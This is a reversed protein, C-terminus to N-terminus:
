PFRLMTGNQVNKRLFLIVFPLLSPGQLLFHEQLLWIFALRFSPISLVQWIYLSRLATVFRRFLSFECAADGVLRYGPGAYQSASYSYDSAQRVLPGGEKEVMRANPILDSILGPALKLQHLYIDQLSSDPDGSAKRLTNRKQISLVHNMVIGVSVLNKALPIFWAWGSEDILLRRTM